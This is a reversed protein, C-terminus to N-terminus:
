LFVYKESEIWELVTKMMIPEEKLRYFHTKLELLRLFVM